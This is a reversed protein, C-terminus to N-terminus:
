IAHKEKENEKYLIFSIAEREREIEQFEDKKM